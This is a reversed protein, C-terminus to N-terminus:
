FLPPPELGLAQNYSDEKECVRCWSSTSSFDEQNKRAGCKVCTKNDRKRIGCLSKNNLTM